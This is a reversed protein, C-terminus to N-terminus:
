DIALDTAYGSYLQALKWNAFATLSAQYGYNVMLSETHDAFWGLTALQGLNSSTPRYVRNIYSVIPGHDGNLWLRHKDTETELAELLQQCRIVNTTSSKLNVLNNM